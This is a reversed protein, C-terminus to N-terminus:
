FFLKCYMQLLSSGKGEFSRRSIISEVANKEANVIQTALDGDDIKSESGLLARRKPLFITINKFAEYIGQMWAFFMMKKCCFVLWMFQYVLIAPGFRFLYSLPYNKILVNLNNRTSLRITLPNIKSGSTASGIHYVVARCLYMCRMGNRRARLNLDVDELYAFFDPDFLGTKLFFSKRYLAAGGCAGFVERDYSYKKGDCELTGLRYGVGGRLVADGAGDLINRKNFSLMKLAFFDYSEYKCAGAYLHELCHPDIEMDNNLLLVLDAESREVGANVAVSFGTNYSFKILQVLPYDRLLVKETDDTSGNDVVTVSFDTFTQEYLSQLCHQLMKSGNWNPIIVEIKSDVARM